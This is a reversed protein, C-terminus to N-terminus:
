KFLHKDFFDSIKMYYENGAASDAGGHGGVPVVWLEKPEHAARFLRRGNAAPIM